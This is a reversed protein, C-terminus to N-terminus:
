GYIASIRAVRVPLLNIDIVGWGIRFVSYYHNGFGVPYVVYNHGNCPRKENNSADNINGDIQRPIRLLVPVLVIPLVIPCLGLRRFDSVICVESLMESETARNGDEDKVIM